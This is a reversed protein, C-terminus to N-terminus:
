EKKKRPKFDEITLKPRLAASTVYVEQAPDKAFVAPKQTRDYAHVLLQFPLKFGDQEQYKSFEVLLPDTSPKGRERVIAVAPLLDERLGLEVLYMAPTERALDGSLLAFDPSDFAIWRLKKTRSALEPGLDAPAAPLIELGQVNLRAPISLAVYNRALTLMDDVKKRDEKYERGALVTVSDPTQMWYQEPAPGFRGTENKSPLVFRICDPALYSYDIHSENNQVGNRILVDAKLQFSNLPARNAEGSAACAREWLARAEDAAPAPKAGAQAEQARYASLPTLWLSLVVLLPQM